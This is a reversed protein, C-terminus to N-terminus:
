YLQSWGRSREPAVIGTMNLATLIACKSYNLTAHGSLSNLNLTANQAMVGGWFHAETSGGGATSLTGRIIVLGYFQYSGQISLDGDVLLIGQGQDGNMTADGSIHIIPWYSGCVGAPNLGDGWNTPNTRDCTTGSWTPFSKYNGGPLQITAAAALENYTVDGFQTFTSDAVTPDKLVPPYGSVHPGSQQVVATDPERIGAVGPDTNDCISGTWGDPIWNNGDVYANGVLKVDGQTTLSAGVAVDLLRVRMLWGLRQRAGSGFAQGAASARDRGTVDVMYLNSNLKRIVGTYSGTGGGSLVPAFVFSDAPYIPLANYIQPNWNRVVENIAAEGVGFSQQVRLSNQGVRQEQTGAFFAGAILAGAVVLAFIAVALAMGREDRLVRIM